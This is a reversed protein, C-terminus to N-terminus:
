KVGRLIMTVSVNTDWQKIGKNYLEIRKDYKKNKIEKLKAIENETIVGKAILLLSDASDLEVQRNANIMAYAMQPSYNPNDPTLNITIYETSINKFGYKSMELPLETESMPYACIKYKNNAKEIYESTRNYIETEFDTMEAICPAITNISRRASLVLCVGDPKLVRYQEGFFKSPEIHEQVTNSITVDFSNDAFSLKTADEETFKMNPIEKIAFDIFASDRDTGIIKAQPYWRHLAQSLAGPGCGIELINVKEEIDFSNKYKNKFEDSFRLQRSLYLTGTKQICDSWITNM